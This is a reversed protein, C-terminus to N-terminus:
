LGVLEEWPMRGWPFHARYRVDRAESEERMKCAGICERLLRV